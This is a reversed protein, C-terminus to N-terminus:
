AKTEQPINNLTTEYAKSYTLGAADVPNETFPEENLGSALVKSLRNLAQSTTSETHPSELFYEQKGRSVDVTAIHRVFCSCRKSILSSLSSNTVDWDIWVPVISEQLEYM